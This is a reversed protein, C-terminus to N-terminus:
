RGTRLNEPSAAVPTAQDRRRVIERQWGRAIRGIMMPSGARMAAAFARGSLGPRPVMVFRFRVAVRGPAIQELQWSGDLRSVPYPYSPDDTRVSVAFARGEDWMTCSEDWARGRVDWCRRSLAAGNPATAVVRSLNPALRGYLEHDTVVEWAEPMSAELERTAEIVREAPATAM